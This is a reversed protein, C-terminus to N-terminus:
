NLIVPTVNCKYNQFYRLLRTGSGMEDYWNKEASRSKFCMARRELRRSVGESVILFDIEKKLFKPKISLLEFIFDARRLFFRPSNKFAVATGIKRSSAHSQNAAWRNYRPSGMWKQSM